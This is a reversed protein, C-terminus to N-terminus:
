NSNGTHTRLHTKLVNLHRFSKQCVQCEYGSNSDDHTKVHAKLEKKTSCKEGCYICILDGDEEQDNMTVDEDSSLKDSVHESENESSIKKQKGKGHHQAAAKVSKNTRRTVRKSKLSSEPEIQNAKNSSSSKPSNEPASSTSPGAVPDDPFPEGFSCHTGIIGLEKLCVEFEEMLAKSTQVEGSYIYDLLLKLQNYRNFFQLLLM